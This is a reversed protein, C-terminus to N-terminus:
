SGLLPKTCCDGLAQAQPRQLAHYSLARVAIVLPKLKHVSFDRHLAMLLLASRQSCMYTQKPAPQQGRSMSETLSKSRGIFAITDTYISQAARRQNQAVESAVEEPMADISDILLSGAFM